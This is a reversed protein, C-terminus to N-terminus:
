QSHTRLLQLLEYVFEATGAATARQTFHRRGLREGERTAANVGKTRLGASPPTVPDNLRSLGAMRWCSPVTTADTGHFGGTLPM